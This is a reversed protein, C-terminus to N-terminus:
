NFRIEQKSNCNRGEQKKEVGNREKGFIVKLVRFFWLGKEEGNGKLNWGCKESENEVAESNM